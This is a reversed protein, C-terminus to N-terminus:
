EWPKPLEIWAYDDSLEWARVVLMNKVEIKKNFDFNFPNATLHVGDTWTGDLKFSDVTSLPLEGSRIREDFPSYMHKENMKYKEDKSLDYYEKITIGFTNFEEIKM